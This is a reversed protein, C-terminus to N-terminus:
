NVRGNIKESALHKLQKGRERDATLKYLELQQRRAILFVITM